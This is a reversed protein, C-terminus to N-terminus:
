LEKVKEKIQEICEFVTIAGLHFQEINWLLDNKIVKVIREQEATCCTSFGFEGFMEEALENMKKM